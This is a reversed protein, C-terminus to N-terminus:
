LLSQAELNLEIWDATHALPENAFLHRIRGGKVLELPRAADVDLADTLIGPVRILSRDVSLALLGKRDELRRGRLVLGGELREDLLQAGSVRRAPPEDCRRCAPREGRESAARSGRTIVEGCEGLQEARLVGGRKAQRVSQQVVSVVRLIYHM